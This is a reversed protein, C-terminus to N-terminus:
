SDGCICVGPPAYAFIPEEDNKKRTRLRLEKRSFIWGVSFIRIYIKLRNKRFLARCSCNKGSRMILISPTKRPVSSLDRAHTWGSRGSTCPGTRLCIEGLLSSYPPRATTGHRKGDPRSFIQVFSRSTPHTHPPPPPPNANGFGLIM